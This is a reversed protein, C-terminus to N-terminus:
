HFSGSVGAPISSAVNRKTACRRLWQALATWKISLVGSFLYVEVDTDEEFHKYNGIHGDEAIGQRHTKLFLM